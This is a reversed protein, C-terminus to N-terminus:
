YVVPAPQNAGLNVVTPKKSPFLIIMLIMALLVWSIIQYYDVAFRLQTQIGITKSLLGNSIKIAQDPAAGKATLVQRYLALKQVAVPNLVSLQEQFRATHDAQRYLQFYNILAISSCFGTFRM